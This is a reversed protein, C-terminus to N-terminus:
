SYLASLEKSRVTVLLTWYKTKEWAKMFDELPIFKKEHRGSNAVVGNENYGLVVMFHNVQLVSFGYDVLVILPQGADIRKRLDDWGGSYQSAELGQARAYLLMDINLTGGASRSYIAKAVEAPTVPVGRYSLVGALSSPGCQYDEQPFFPVNEVIRLGATKQAEPIGGPHACGCLFVVLVFLLPLREQLSGFRCHTVPGALSSGGRM